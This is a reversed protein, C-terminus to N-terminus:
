RRAERGSGHLVWAEYEGPLFGMPVRAFFGFARDASLWADASGLVADLQGAQVAGLGAGGLLALPHLVVEVAGNTLREVRRALAVAHPGLVEAGVAGGPDVGLRLRVGGQARVTAPAALGSAVAAFMRRRSLPAISSLPLGTM